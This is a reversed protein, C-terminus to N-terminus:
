NKNVDNKSNFFLTLIAVNYIRASESKVSAAFPNFLDRMRFSDSLQCIETKCKMESYIEKEHIKAKPDEINSTLRVTCDV